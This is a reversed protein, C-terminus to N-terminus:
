AINLTSGDQTAAVGSTITLVSGTQTVGEHPPADPAAGATLLAELADINATQPSYTACDRLITILLSAAAASMGGGQSPNQGSDAGGGPKDVAVLATIGGQADVGGIEIIQGAKGKLGALATLAAPVNAIGSWDMLNGAINKFIGM